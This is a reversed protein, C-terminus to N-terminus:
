RAERNTTIIVSIMIKIKGIAEDLLAFSLGTHRLVCRESRYILVKLPIPLPHGYESSVKNTEDGMDMVSKLERKSINDCPLNVTKDNGQYLKIQGMILKM